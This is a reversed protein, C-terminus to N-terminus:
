ALAAAWRRAREIEDPLLPGLTAQVPFRQPRSVIRFGAKRLRRAAAHAASGPFPLKTRTDFAAARTNPAATVADLWERMGIGRSVLGEPAMDAAQQRTSPRSLSLAHTPAGVVLLGIEPDLAQPAESVEFLDVDMREALVEAIAQAIRQTNGFMSEYVVVGRM